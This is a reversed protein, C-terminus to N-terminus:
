GCLLYGYVGAGDAYSVADRELSSQALGGRVFTIPLAGAPRQSEGRWLPSPCLNRRIEWYQQLVAHEQQRIERKARAPLNSPVPGPSPPPRFKQTPAVGILLRRRIYVSM